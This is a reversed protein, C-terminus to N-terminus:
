TQDTEEAIEGARKEAAEVAACVGELFGREELVNLAAETTGRKSTVAVRLEEASKGSNALMHVAGEVTSLALRRADEEGFGRERAAQELAEFFRFVYAPGSGSVATVADLVDEREVWLVSGVATFLGEATARDGPPVGEAAYLGTIGKGFLAPTNPMARVIRGHGGLLRSITSTLAGAVVSVVIGGDPAWDRAADALHFPKVAFVTVDAPSLAAAKEVATVGGPKGLKERIGPDPDAVRIAHGADKAALLGSLLAQAMNGGGVFNVRM